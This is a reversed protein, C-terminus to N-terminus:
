SWLGRKRLSSKLHNLTPHKLALHAAHKRAMDDGKEGGIAERLDFLIDAAAKYNDTGRDEVLKEATRLWKKPAKAIEMMRSQRNQEAKAADRKAKAAAKAAAKTNASSRLLETQALLEAFTRQLDTAPWIAKPQADRVEALLRAKLGTTDETLLKVLLDRAQQTKLSKAWAQVPKEVSEDPPAGEVDNAAALLLLPDLGYFTLLDGVHGALESIGHPVPPEITEDPANYDDDAACLWLLYLARLDGNVLRKRVHVAVDVYKQLEWVEELEGSEHFPHLSLIGGPGKTDRNWTLREGDIYRSHMRKDFPLGQPLRIKIERDGYNTYQLFVDYGRRLLGNVDGRFSSYHYEVALSWRTVDARTSQRQAFALERDNLPRDVAQFAVYQFESM